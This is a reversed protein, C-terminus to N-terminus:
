KGRIEKRIYAYMHKLNLTDMFFDYDEKKFERLLYLISIYIAFGFVTILVLQYWRVIPICLSIYSIILGSIIASFAHLIICKDGKIRNLKWAMFRIYVFGFMYAIVTALSAGVAGLGALKIGLSQIDSPVLLFNLIINIIVMILVRNRAIKPLNMGQFYSHYPGSLVSLLVFFPLIQLVPLAAEYKGSLIIPIIESALVVMFIIIPFVIMSIYRESKLVLEKIKSFKKKAHHESVTPLLLVGISSSFLIIYRSLNYVAFYEGVQQASWFFQIFIKDINTIILASIVVPAVHIAFSSYDKFCLFSPKGIPYGRFLYLALGLHFIEGLLYTYALSLPGLGNLAVYVTACIRVFNYTLLPLQSRAIEKKANFTFIMSQALTLLVFYALM